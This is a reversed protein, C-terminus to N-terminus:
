FAPAAQARSEANRRSGIGVAVMLPVLFATAKVHFPYRDGFRALLEPLDSPTQIKVLAYACAATLVIGAWPWNRGAVYGVLAAICGALLHSVWLQHPALPGAALAWGPALALLAFALATRNKM